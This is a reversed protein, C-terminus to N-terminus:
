PASFPRGIRFGGPEFAVDSQFVEGRPIERNPAVAVDSGAGSECADEAGSLHEEPFSAGILALQADWIETADAATVDVHEFGLVVTIQEAFQKREDTLGVCEELM